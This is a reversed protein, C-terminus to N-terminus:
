THQSIELYRAAIDHDRKMVYVHGHKQYTFKSEFDPMARALRALAANKEARQTRLASKIATYTM